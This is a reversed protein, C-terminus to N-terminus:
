IQLQEAYRYSILDGTQTAEYGAEDHSLKSIMRSSYSQFTERVAILTKLESDSFLALRPEAEAFLKEGGGDDFFEEEARLMGEHQMFSFYVDFDNPVPGHPLHAYRLGTCSVTHEKFHKFDLYFLLKNLKTKFVGKECFYLIANVVKEFNLPMYGSFEDDEYNGAHTEFFWSYSFVQREEEKLLSMLDKKRGPNLADPKEEILKLLSSPKMALRLATDHTEDQLAGNEYRSLTTEGWGLLRSLEGQTLGYRKRFSRIEEPQIMGHRHRFIKYAEALHDYESNLDLSEEGCDACKYFEVNVDILEGRVDFSEPKRIFEHHTEKECIGCIRQM